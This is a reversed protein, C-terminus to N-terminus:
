PITKIAGPINDRVTQRIIPWIRKIESKIEEFTAQYFEVRKGFPDQITVSAGTNERMYERLTFIKSSHHPFIESLDTKQNYSMCLILDSENMQRLAIPQSMHDSVDYGNEACVQETFRAASMGSAAMTGASDILIENTLGDRDVLDQMVCTAMPTRCINATCVFLIRYENTELAM